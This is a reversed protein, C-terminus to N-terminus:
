LRAKATLASVKACLLVDFNRESEQFESEWIM